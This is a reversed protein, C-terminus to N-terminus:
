PEGEGTREEEEAQDDDEAQPGLRAQTVPRDGEEHDDDAEGGNPMPDGDLIELGAPADLRLAESPLPVPASWM